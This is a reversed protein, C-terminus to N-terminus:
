KKIETNFGMISLVKTKHDIAIKKFKQLQQFRGNKPPNSSIHKQRSKKMINDKFLM